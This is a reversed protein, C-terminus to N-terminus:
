AFLDRCLENKRTDGQEKYDFSNKHLYKNLPVAHERNVASSQINNAIVNNLVREDESIFKKPRKFQDLHM